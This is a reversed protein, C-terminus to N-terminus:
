PAIFKITFTTGHNRSLTIQGNIQSVLTNVLQLGLTPTQQSDIAEPFGSGNDAVTLMFENEIAHLNIQIQGSRGNDFGHKFANSVLENLILGCPVATEMTLFVEDTQVDVAVRGDHMAYTQHLQATLQRIYAGFDIQALDDSRYLIEHILAMSRVRSQGEALAQAVAQNENQAAQLNLLSSIIQLNNKVRHHIEKLLADKEHLSAKLQEEMQKREGIDRLVVVQSVLHQRGDFLPTVRMDFTHSGDEDALMWETQLGVALNEAILKAPWDPWFQAIPRGLLKGKPRRLMNGVVPNLDIIGNARNLVLVGDGMQEILMDRAVPGVDRMQLHYIAWGAASATIGLAVPTFDMNGFPKWGLFIDALNVLWPALTVMMLSIVQWRYFRGSELLARLLIVLGASVLIYAHVLFLWFAPGFVVTKIVKGDVVALEFQSWFLGHLGNTYILLLTLIPILWLMLFRRRTIKTVRGLYHMIFETWGPPLFVIALFQVDKWFLRYAVEVSFSELVSGMMWWGVAALLLSGIRAVPLYRFRLWNIAAVVFCVLAVASQFIAFPAWQWTM